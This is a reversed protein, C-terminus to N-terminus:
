PNIYTVAVIRNEGNEVDEEGEFIYRVKRKDRRM